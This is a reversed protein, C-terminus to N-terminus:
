EVMFDTKRTIVVVAIFGTLINASIIILAFVNATLVINLSQLAMFIVTSLAISLSGSIIIREIFDLSKEHKREGGALRKSDPFFIITLFFGPLFTSGLGAVAITFSKTLPYYFSLAIGVFFAILSAVTLGRWLDIKTFSNM